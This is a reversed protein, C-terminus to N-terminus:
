KRPVGQQRSVSNGNASFISPNGLEERAPIHESFLQNSPIVSFQEFNPFFPRFRVPLIIFKMLTFSILTVLLHSVNFTHELEHKYHDFTRGAHRLSTGVSRQVLAHVLAESQGPM